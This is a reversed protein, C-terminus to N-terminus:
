LDVSSMFNERRMRALHHSKNQRISWYNSNETISCSSRAQVITAMFTHVSRCRRNTEAISTGVPSRVAAEEAPISMNSFRDLTTTQIVLRRDATPAFRARLSVGGTTGGLNWSMSKKWLIKDLMPQM